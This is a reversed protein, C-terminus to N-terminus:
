PHVPTTSPAISQPPQGPGPVGAGAGGGGQPGGPGRHHFMAPHHHGHHHGHHGQHAAIRFGAFFITTVIFLIGAVIVVWAAFRYLWYPKEPSAPPATAAAPKTPTDFPESM